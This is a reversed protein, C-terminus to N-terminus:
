YPQIAPSSTLARTDAPIRYSGSGTVYKTRCVQVSEQITRGRPRFIEGVIERKVLRHITRGLVSVSLYLM